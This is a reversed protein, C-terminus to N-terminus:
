VGFGEVVEEEMFHMKGPIVFCFPAKVKGAVKKLRGVKGYYIKGKGTGLRSCVLIKDLKFRRNGSAKVLEDIADKFELDIDVLILSHSGIKQNEIVYDLFSDPSYHEQWKPMSSIKGFKYLQLGTEGVADYIGAGYIIKVRVRAKACDSVLTEHTTAFLPSGYTLLCINKKQAEKVLKDSEVFERGVEEIKKGVVRELEKLSYPFEVTYNELYVKSCKRVVERGELSIGKVNLGLGIIYLM